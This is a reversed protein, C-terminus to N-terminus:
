GCIAGGEKIVRWCIGCFYRWHDRVGDRDLTERIAREIVAEPLRKLFLRLNKKCEPILSLEDDGYFVSCWVSELRRVAAADQKEISKVFANLQKLQDRREKEIAIREKVGPVVDSLPVDSKGRNCDFCSTVLNHEQENGGVSVPIVHDIELTVTPPSQGCYVCRFSDRKFVEFRLRKTISKRQTLSM